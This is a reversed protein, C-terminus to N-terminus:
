IHRRPSQGRRRNGKALACELEIEIKRPMHQEGGRAIAGDPLDPKMRAGDGCKVGLQHANQGFQADLDADVVQRVLDVRWDAEALVVRMRGIVGIVCLLEPANQQLRVPHEPRESRAEDAFAARHMEEPAAEVQRDRAKGAAPRRQMRAAYGMKAVCHRLFGIRMLHAAGAEPGAIVPKGMGCKVGVGIRLRGAKGRRRNLGGFRIVVLIEAFINQGILRHAIGTVRVADQQREQHAGVVGRRRQAM